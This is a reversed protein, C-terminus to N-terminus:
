GHRVEGASGFAIPMFSTAPLTGGILSSLVLHYM